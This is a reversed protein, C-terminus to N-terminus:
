CIYEVTGGQNRCLGDSMPRLLPRVRCLMEARRSLLPIMRPLPVAVKWRQPLRESFRVLSAHRRWLKETYSHVMFGGSHWHHFKYRNQPPYATFSDAQQLWQPPLHISFYLFVDRIISACHTFENHLSFVLFRRTEEDHHVVFRM